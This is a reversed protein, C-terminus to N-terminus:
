RGMAQAGRLTMCTSSARAVLREKDDVVDCEVLGVTHGGKVVRGTAVLRAARVPKLFNIKLELTTFTEDEDLTAAYAIGMAADAIDCLVGGHVTGMPNAHRADAELTVVARGPEVEDLTFGILRAVPPPPAEGRQIQRIMDIHKPM